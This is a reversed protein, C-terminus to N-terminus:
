RTLEKQYAAVVEKTIDKSEGGILASSQFVVVGNNKAYVQVSRYLSQAFLSSENQLAAMEQPSEAALLRARYGEQEKEIIGNLDVTVFGNGAPRYSDYLYVAGLSVAASLLMNIAIWKKDM